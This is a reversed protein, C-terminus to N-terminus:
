FLEGQKNQPSKKDWTRITEPPIDPLRVLQPTDPSDLDHWEFRNIDFYVELGFKSPALGVNMTEALHELEGLLLKWIDVQIIALYCPIKCDKAAQRYHEFHRQLIGHQHRQRKQEWAAIQYTKVEVFAPGGARFVINDPLIVKKNKELLMPAGGSDIDSAAVVIYGNQTLWQRAIIEGQRGREWPDIM